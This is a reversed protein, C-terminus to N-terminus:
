TMQDPNMGQSLATLHRILADGDGLGLITEEYRTEDDGYSRGVTNMAGRAASLAQEIEARSPGKLGSVGVYRARATTLDNHAIRKDRWDAYPALLSDIITAQVHVAGGLTSNVNGVVEALRDLTLNEYKGTKVPDTFRFLSLVIDDYMVEQVPGFLGGAFRNLLEIRGSDTAFLQRFLLWKVHINVLERKLPNYVEAVGNPMTANPANMRSDGPFTNLDTLGGASPQNAVTLTMWEVLALLGLM